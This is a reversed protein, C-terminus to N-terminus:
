IGRRDTALRLKWNEIPTGVTRLRSALFALRRTEDCEGAFPSTCRIGFRQALYYPPLAQYYLTARVARAGPVRSLPIRYVLRDAGQGNWYDRDRASEGHPQTETWFPGGRRWGRPLLRNEKVVSDLALFSTTLMGEPDLIREEYIQVQDDRTITEYHPQFTGAAGRRTVFETPLIQNTTGRLIAGVSNTRGSAWLTDRAGVVALELFARRFGVGSPLRHGALNEVRVTVELSDRVRRVGEVRVRASQERALTEMSLGTNVLPQVGAGYMYDTRRIGLTDPFQQFMSLTFLNIGSLMHRSFTDRVAVTIASDRARHDAMPYTPDEILAVRYRLRNGQFDQPMHCSQCTRASDRRVPAIEDQFVSNLWEIYTAQEYGEGVQKGTRDLVPLVVTHCAGCLAGSRIQPAFRPTIGLAEKMPHEIVNEYPGNVHGPPDVKFRGTFSSTDGVAVPSIQHCAMCSIGDRALAGYKADPQGPTTYVMDHRFQKGDITAQRQGMVGHCRYCTTDIFTNLNAPFRAVEYERQAHFVPDRGALGMLSARWEGYPSLNFTDRGGATIFAMNFTSASHCGTCQDSTIFQEPGKPGAVVHDYTEVPFATRGTPAAFERSLRYLALFAPDPADLPKPLQFRSTPRTADVVQAHPSLPDRERSPPATAVTTLTQVVFSLPDQNPDVNRVAAFTLEAEASAHCRTCYLGFGSNPYDIAPQPSPKVGAYGWYWGDFAGASDRVMTTWGELAATDSAPPTYMEKVIIGGDPIRGQRNKVTMWEWVSPSYYVRVAPHTGFNRGDIFPGTNRIERDRVWGLYCGGRLFTNLKAEYAQEGMTSPLPLTSDQCVAGGRRAFTTAPTLLGVLLCLVIVAVTAASLQVERRRTM